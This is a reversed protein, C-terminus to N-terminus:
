PTQTTTSLTRRNWASIAEHENIYAGTRLSCGEYCTVAKGILVNTDPTRIDIICAGSSGCCPCPNITENSAARM